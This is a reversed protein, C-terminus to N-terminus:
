IDPTWQLSFRFIYSIIAYQLKSSVPASSEDDFKIAKLDQVEKVMFIEGIDVEMQGKEKMELQKLGESHLHQVSHVHQM